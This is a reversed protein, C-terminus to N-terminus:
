IHISHKRLWRLAKQTDSAVKAKECKKLRYKFRWYTFEKLRTINIAGSLPYHKERRFLKLLASETEGYIRNFTEDEEDRRYSLGNAHREKRVEERVAQVLAEEVTIGYFYNLYQHYKAPGILAKFEDQTLELPPKNHFLLDNKEKEPILGNVADCIRGALLIWDFAEGDILYQYDEGQHTETEDTWLRISELLAIYWHKGSALAQKFYNVAVASNSVPPLVIEPESYIQNEM